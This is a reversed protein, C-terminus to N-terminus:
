SPGEQLISLFPSVHQVTMLRKQASFHATSRACCMYNDYSLDRELDARTKGTMDAYLTLITDKIHM